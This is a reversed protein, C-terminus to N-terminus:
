LGAYWDYGAEAWFDKPRDDTYTITGIRKINKIGYKTPIALRLPAGHDLSLPAGNMEYCLLTQPHMASPLDLGVYYGDDPTAMGVYRVLNEPHRAPDPDSGDRTVPPHLAILDSMRAGTWAVTMSWGEICCLQTTITHRPLRKIEDLTMELPEDRGAVGVLSLTWTDPSFDDGLGEMGNLRAKGVKTPDFTPAMSDHRFADRWVSENFELGRRFPWPTGNLDSRTALYRVGGYAGLGAAIAWLFSRRSMRRIALEDDTRGKAAREGAVTEKM